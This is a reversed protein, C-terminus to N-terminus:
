NCSCIDLGLKQYGLTRYPPLFTDPLTGHTPLGFIQFFFTKGCIDLPVIPIQGGFM